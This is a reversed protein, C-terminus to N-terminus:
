YKKMKKSTKTMNFTDKISGKFTDIEHCLMQSTKHNDLGHILSLNVYIQSMKIMVKAKFIKTIKLHSIIM